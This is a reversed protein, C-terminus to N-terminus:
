TNQTEFTHQEVFLISSLTKFSQIIRV